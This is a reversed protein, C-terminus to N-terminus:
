PAKQLVTYSLQLREYMLTIVEGAEKFLMTLELLDCKRGTEHFRVM